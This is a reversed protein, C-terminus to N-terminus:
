GETHSARRVLDVGVRREEAAAEPEVRDIGYLEHHLQIRLELHLERVVHEPAGLHARHVPEDIEHERGLGRLPGIGDGASGATAIRSDTTTVRRSWTWRRRM